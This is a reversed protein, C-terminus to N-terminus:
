GKPSVTDEQCLQLRRSSVPGKPWSEGKQHSPTRRVCGYNEQGYLKMLGSEDQSVTGEYCLQLRRSRVTCYRPGVKMRKTLCNRNSM